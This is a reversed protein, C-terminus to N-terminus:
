TYNNIDIVNKIILNATDGKNIRKKMSIRQIIQHSDAESFGKDMLLIKAKLVLVENNRKLTLSSVERELEKIKFLRKSVEFIMSYLMIDMKIEEIFLFRINNYLNHVHSISSSNNIYVVLIDSRNAIDSMIVSKNAISNKYTFIVVNFYILSQPIYNNVISVVNNGDELISKVKNDIFTGSKIIAVRM